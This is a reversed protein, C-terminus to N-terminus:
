SPFACFIFRLKSRSSRKEDQGDEEVAPKADAKKSKSQKPPKVVESKNASANDNAVDLKKDVKKDKQSSKANDLKSKRSSRTKKTIDASETCDTTSARTGSTDTTSTETEHSMSQVSGEQEGVQNSGQNSTRRKLKIKIDKGRTQVDQKTESKTKNDWRRKRTDKSGIDLDAKDQNSSDTVNLVDSDNIDVNKIIKKESVSDGGQSLSKNLDSVSGEDCVAELKGPKSDGVTEKELVDSDVEKKSDVNEDEKSKPDDEEKDKTKEDEKVEVVNKTEKTIEKVPSKKPSSESDNLKSSQQDPADNTGSSQSFILPDTLM